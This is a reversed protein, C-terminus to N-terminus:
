EYLREDDRFLPNIGYLMRNRGLTEWDQALHLSKIRRM